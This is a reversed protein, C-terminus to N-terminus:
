VVNLWVAIQAPQGSLVTAVLSVLPMSLTRNWSQRPLGNHWRPPLLGSANLLRQILPLNLLSPSASPLFVVDSSLGPCGFLLGQACQLFQVNM